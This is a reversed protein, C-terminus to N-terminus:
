HLHVHLLGLAFWLHERPAGHSRLSAKKQHNSILWCRVAVRRERELWSAARLADLGRWGQRCGLCDGQREEKRKRGVMKGRQQECPSLPCHRWFSPNEQMGEGLLPGLENKM